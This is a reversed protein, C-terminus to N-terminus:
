IGYTNRCRSIYKQIKEYHSHNQNIYIYFHKESVTMEINSVIICDPHQMLFYKVRKDAKEGFTGGNVYIISCLHSNKLFGFTNLKCHNDIIFLYKREVAIEKTLCHGQLGIQNLMSSIFTYDEKPCSLFITEHIDAIGALVFLYGPLKTIIEIQKIHACM